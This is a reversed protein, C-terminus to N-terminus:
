NLVTQTDAWAEVRALIADAEFSAVLWTGSNSKRIRPNNRGPRPPYLGRLFVCNRNVRREVGGPSAAASAALGAPNSLQVLRRRAAGTLVAGSSMSVPVDM